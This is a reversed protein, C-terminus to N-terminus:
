ISEVATIGKNNILKLAIRAEDPNLECGKIYFLLNIFKIPSETPILEADFDIKNLLSRISDIAMLADQDSSSEKELHLLKNFIM